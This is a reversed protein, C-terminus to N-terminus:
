RPWEIAENKHHTAGFDWACAIKGGGARLWKCFEFDETGAETHSLNAYAYKFYPPTMKALGSLRIMMCGTGIGWVLEVGTRREDNGVHGGGDIVHVAHDPAAGLYPAGVVDVAPNKELIALAFPLFEDHPVTDHDVMLLCDFGFAVAADITHNRAVDTPSIDVLADDVQPASTPEGDRQAGLAGVLQMALWHALEARVWGGRAFLTILVRM